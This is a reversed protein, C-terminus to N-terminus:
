PRFSGRVPMIASRTANLLRDIVIHHFGEVWVKQVLYQRSQRLTGVASVNRNMDAIQQTLSEPFQRAVACLLNISLGLL